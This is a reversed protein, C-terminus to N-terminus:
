QIFGSNGSNNKRIIEKLENISYAPKRKHLMAHCNPCVPILDTKPNVSYEKGITSIEVLRHVHIFSVGLEGFKTQFNFHCVQCNSGFFSICEQRALQNREYINVTVHKTRGEAYPIESDVEDPYITEAFDDRRSNHRKDAPTPM